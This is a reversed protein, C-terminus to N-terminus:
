RFEGQESDGVGGGRACVNSIKNNIVVAGLLESTLLGRGIKVPAGPFANQMRDSMRLQYYWSPCAPSRGHSRQTM